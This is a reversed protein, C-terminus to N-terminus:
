DRTSNDGGTDGRGILGASGLADLTGLIDAGEGAAKKAAQKRQESWGPIDDILDVISVGSAALKTIGDVKGQYSQIETPLWLAEAADDFDINSQQAGIRLLQEWSEGFSERKANLKRQQMADAAALAEASLNVMKGTVDRTPIQARNAVHEMMELLISNYPEVPSAPFAGARIEPDALAMVEQAGMKQLTTSDTDFGLFYKQVHAGFRSVTLRDYNVENIALQDTILPAIEGRVLDEADRDNVFRM